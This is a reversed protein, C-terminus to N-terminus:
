KNEQMVVNRDNSDWAVVKYNFNKVCYNIATDNGNEAELVLLPKYKNITDSAGQLVRTEFGDVDIKIYSINPLNFQDLTFIEEDHWKEKPVKGSTMSGGGSVSITKHEEGLGCKFHTCKDLPVNDSFLRRHRYDFCYVHKFPLSLYRAYEGDRCGIDVANEYELIFPVSAKWTLKCHHEPFEGTGDKSIFYDKDYWDPNYNNSKWVTPLVPYM